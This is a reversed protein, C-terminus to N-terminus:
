NCSSIKEKIVKYVAEAYLNMGSENPHLSADEFYKPEHPVFDTCDIVIMNPYKQTEEAIRDRVTQLTPIDNHLEEADVRWIPLLVFIPCKAFTKAAKEMFIQMNEMFLAMSWTKHGFDNTGYAVTVLDCKPYEGVIKNARFVEGSVGYNHVEADLMQGLQYVYARCTRAASHGQTISDGFAVMTRKHTYPRFSAGDCLEVTMADVSLSFQPVLTVRKEGEPLHFTYYLPGYTKEEGKPGEVKEIWQTTSAYIKGDVMLDAACMTRGLPVHGALSLTVLRSDTYFDLMIGAARSGTINHADGAPYIYAQEETMRRLFISGDPNEKKIVAGKACAALQEYTLKM